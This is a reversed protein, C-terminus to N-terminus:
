GGFSFGIHKWRRESKIVKSKSLHFLQQVVGRVVLPNVQNARASQFEFEMDAKDHNVLM